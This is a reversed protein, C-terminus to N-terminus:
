EVSGEERIPDPIWVLVVHVIMKYSVICISLRELAHKEGYSLYYQSHIVQLGSHV